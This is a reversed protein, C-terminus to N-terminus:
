PSTHTSATVDRLATTACKEAKCHANRYRQLRLTGHLNWCPLLSRPFRHAEFHRGNALVVPREFRRAEGERRVIPKTFWVPTKVRIERHLRIDGECVLQPNSAFFAVQHQRVRRCPHLVHTELNLRGSRQM